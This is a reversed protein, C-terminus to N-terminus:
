IFLQLNTRNSFRHSTGIFTESILLKFFFWSVSKLLLLRKECNTKVEQYLPIETELSKCGDGGGGKKSLHYISLMM